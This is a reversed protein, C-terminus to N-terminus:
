SSCALTECVTEDKPIFPVTYEITLPADESGKEKYEVHVKDVEKTGINLNIYYNSFTVGKSLHIPNFKMGSSTSNKIMLKITFEIPVNTDMSFDIIFKNTENDKTTGNVRFLQIPKETIPLSPIAEVEEVTPWHSDHYRKSLEKIGKIDDDTLFYKEKWGASSMQSSTDILIHGEEDLSAHNLDCNTANDAMAYQDCLGWVHGIEHLIIPLTTYTEDDVKYGIVERKILTDVLEKTTKIKNTKSQLSIWKYKKPDGEKYKRLYLSRKFKYVDRKENQSSEFFSYSSQTFGLTKGNAYAEGVVLDTNEGCTEYYKSTLENSSQNVDTQEPLDHVSFEISINRGIYHAWLQISAEIETQIGPYKLVMYQAICVDYVSDKKQHILYMSSPNTDELGTLHGWKGEVVKLGTNQGEKACSHLFLVSIGLIVLIKFLKM